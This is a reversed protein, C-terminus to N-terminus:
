SQARLESPAVEKTTDLSRSEAHGDVLRSHWYEVSYCRFIRFPEDIWSSVERFITTFINDLKELEEFDVVYAMGASRLYEYAGGKVYLSKSLKSGAWDVLLPAYLIVPAISPTDLLRWLLQEQYFGAYDAGTTLIWSSAPDESCLRARILNRLPTNFGLGAIDDINHISVGYQGHVPCTFTISNDHYINSIGHKDCLGCDTKPCPARIGLCKIDPSLHLGLIERAQIIQQFVSPFAPNMYWLRQDTTHYEVGSLVRLRDLVSSFDNQNQRMQGTRSLTKQYRIGHVWVDEGVAPATDVYALVVSVNRGHDRKLAAGLAFATAFTTINGLHPSSNPQTGIHIKIHSKSCQQELYPILNNRFYYSADGLPHHVEGDHRFAAM